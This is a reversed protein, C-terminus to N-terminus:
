VTVSEEYEMAQVPTQISGITRETFRQYLKFLKMAIKTM